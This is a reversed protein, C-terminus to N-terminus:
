RTVDGKTLVNGALYTVTDGGPWVVQIDYVGIEQWDPFLPFTASVDDPIEFHFLGKNAVQDPDITIVLNYSPTADFLTNRIQGTIVAGTLDQYLDTLQDKVRVGRRYTDGKPAYLDYPLPLEESRITM